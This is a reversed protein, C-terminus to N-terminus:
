NRYEKIRKIANETFYAKVSYRYILDLLEYKSYGGKNIILYYCEKYNNQKKLNDYYKNFWSYKKLFRSDIPKIKKNRLRSKLIIIIELDKGENLTHVLMVRDCLIVYRDKFIGNQIKLKNNYEFKLTEKDERIMIVFVILIEIIILYALFFASFIKTFYVVLPLILFIFGMSLMFRKLAKKQKRIAKNINM